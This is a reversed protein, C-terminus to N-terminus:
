AEEWEIPGTLTVKTGPPWEAAWPFRLAYVCAYPRRDKRTICTYRTYAIEADTCAMIEQCPIVVEHKTGYDDDFECM